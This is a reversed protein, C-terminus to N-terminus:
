NAATATLVCQYYVKDSTENVYSKKLSASFSGDITSTTTSTKAPVLTAASPKTNTVTLYESVPTKATGVTKDTAAATVETCVVDTVNIGYQSFNSVTYDLKIVDGIISLDKSAVFNIVKGDASIQVDAQNVSTAIPDAKTATQTAYTDEALTMSLEAKTFIVNKDLDATNAAINITGNIYLTTSIAAFGIVMLLVAAIVGVKKASNKKMKKVEKRM